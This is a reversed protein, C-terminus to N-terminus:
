GLFSNHRSDPLDGSDSVYVRIDNTHGIHSPLLPWLRLAAFDCAFTPHERALMGQPVDFPRLTPLPCVLLNSARFGFSSVIDFFLLALTEFLNSEPNIDFKQFQKPNRYEFKSNLFCVRTSYFERDLFKRRSGFAEVM